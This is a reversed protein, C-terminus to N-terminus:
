LFFLLVLSKGTPEEQLMERSIGRYVANCLVKIQFPTFVQHILYPAAFLPM